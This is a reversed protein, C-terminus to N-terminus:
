APHSPPSYSQRIDDALVMGADVINLREGDDLRSDRQRCCRWSMYPQPAHDRTCVRRSHRHMEDVTIAERRM